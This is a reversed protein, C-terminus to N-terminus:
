RTKTVIIFKFPSMKKSTRRKKSTSLKLNVTVLQYMLDTSGFGYFFVLLHFILYCYSVPIDDHVM